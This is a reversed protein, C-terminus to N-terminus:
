QRTSAVLVDCAAEKLVRQTTSGLLAQLVIGRGHPGLALLEIRDGQSLRVLTPGPSGELDRMVAKDHGMEERAFAALDHRSKDIRAAHYKEITAQPTGARLLAQEFTLPFDVIHILELTATPALKRAARAASASQPSFDVAVAVQRYPVVSERKVVLVPALATRIVRDATSGLIRETLPRGEARGPGIVIVDVSLEDAVRTIVEHPSGFEVRVDTRRTRGRDILLTELKAVTHQKLQDRLDSEVRGSVGAAQALSETEIVHLLILWAAHQAALQAALALVADSGADLDLAALIKHM